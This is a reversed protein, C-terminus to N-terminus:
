KGNRPKWGTLFYIALKIRSVYTYSKPTFLFKVQWLHHKMAVDVQEQTFNHLAADADVDSIFQDGLWILGIEKCFEKSATYDYHM